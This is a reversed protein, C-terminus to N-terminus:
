ITEFEQQPVNDPPPNDNVEEEGERSIMMFEEVENVPGDDESIDDADKTEAQALIMHRMQKDEKEWVASNNVSAVSDDDSKKRNFNFLNDRKPSPLADEDLSSSSPFLTFSDLKSLM